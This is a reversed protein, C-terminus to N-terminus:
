PLTVWAGNHWYGPGTHEKWVFHEGPGGAGTIPTSSLIHPRLTPIPERRSGATAPTTACSAASASLSSLGLLGFASLALAVIKSRMNM